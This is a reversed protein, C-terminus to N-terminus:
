NTHPLQARILKGNPSRPLASVIVVERPCKYSALREHAFALLESSDITMGERPTVFAALVSVGDRVQYEGVAVEQVAPHEELEREVEVPSVRYGFLNLLDDNRGGFWVYGDDDVSALDGGVFWEGRFVLEEEDPRNVYGLMLSPDSRHVAIVGVTGTPVPDTGGDAPLIAVRRTPQPRGPSGRRVPDHPSSSIYTSIESMGLAEYLETGTAERWANRVPEPLPEGACVAHRLTSLDFDALHARECLQRYLTPVAAMLTAGHREILAPWVTIDREGTYLISTAGVSWPQMLGVTLTYTWNFAGTHLLRDDSTIDLWHRRMPQHGWAARHAHLVGKPRGTTGSTYVLYAPDNAATDVADDLAELTALDAIDAPSLVLVGTPVDVGEALIPDLVIALAGSDALLFSAERPTLQTSSPLAVLGAAMVAMWTIAYRANNASRIMVRSREPLGLSVFGAALRRVELDISALTHTDFDTASTAVILATHDARLRASETLCYRVLNFREPVPSLQDNM